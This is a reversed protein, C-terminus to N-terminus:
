VISHEVPAPKSRIHHLRKTKLLFYGIVLVAFYFGVYLLARRLAGMLVVSSHLAFDDILDFGLRAPQEQSIIL